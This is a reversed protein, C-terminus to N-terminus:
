LFVLGGLAGDVSGASSRIRRTFLSMPVTCRTMFSGPGRQSGCGDSPFSGQRKGRRYCISIVLHFILECIGLVRDDTAETVSCREFDLPVLM